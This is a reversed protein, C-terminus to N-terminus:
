GCVPNLHVTEYGEWEPQGLVESAGLGGDEAVVLNVGPGEVNRTFFLRDDITWAVASTYRSASDPVVSVRGSDLDRVAIQWLDDGGPARIASAVRTGDASLVPTEVDPLVTSTPGTGSAARSRLPSPGRFAVDWWAVTDDDLWAVYAPRTRLRDFTKVVTPEAPNAVDVVLIQDPRDVGGRDRRNLFAIRSGDPSWAPLELMQGTALRRENTGDLDSVYLSTTDFGFLPNHQYGRGSVVVMRRGDPSLVAEQSAHDDTLQVGRVGHEDFGYVAYAGEYRDGEGSTFFVDRCIAPEGDAIQDSDGLGGFLAVPVVFAAVAVAAVAGVTLRRRQRQRGVRGVIADTPPPPAQHRDRLERFAARIQEDSDDSM